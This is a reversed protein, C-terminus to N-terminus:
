HVPIITQAQTSLIEDSTFVTLILIIIIMYPNLSSTLYSEFFASFFIAFMAAIIVKQKRAAKIFTGIVAVLYSLLGVLGTDLWFTLFSNHANGQHGFDNLTKQNLDFLYNTYEFGRGLFIDKTINDWALKWAVYRGAANSLTETRFYSEVGISKVVAVININIYEYGTLIFLLLLFGLLPSIRTLYSFLIYILVAVITNRSGCLFISVFLLVYILLKEQRHFLDPLSRNILVFLLFIVLCYLGMGNPNGLLGRYRAEFSALLPLFIKMLLGLTLVFVGVYIFLKIFDYGDDRYSKNVYTPISFLLFLYSLTKSFSTLAVPSHSICYFAAIFFPIFILYFRNLPAFKRISIFIFVTMMIIYVYKAQEFSRFADLRNDSMTCVFWLGVLLETDKNRLKLILACLTIFVINVPGGLISVIMWLSIMIFFQRYKVITEM